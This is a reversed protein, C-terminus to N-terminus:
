TCKAGLSLWALVEDTLNKHALHGEQCGVVLLMLAVLAYAKLLICLIQKPATVTNAAYYSPCRTQLVVGSTRKGCLCLFDLPCGIFGPKGSFHNTFLPHSATWLMVFMQEGSLLHWLLLLLRLPLHLIILTTQQVNCQRHRLLHLTKCQCRCEWRVLLCTRFM